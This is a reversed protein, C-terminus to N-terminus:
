NNRGLTGILVGYTLLTGLSTIILSRNLTYIKWASLNINQRFENEFELKLDNEHKPIWCPLCQVVHEDEENAISASIMIAMQLFLHFMASLSLALFHELSIKPDFALRYGARFIEIM